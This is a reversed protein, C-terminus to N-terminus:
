PVLKVKTATQKDFGEEIVTLNEYLKIRKTSTIVIKNIPPAFLKACFTLFSVIFKIKFM